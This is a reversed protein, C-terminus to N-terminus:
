TSRFSSSQTITRSFESPSYAPTPPRTWRPEGSSAAVSTAINVRAPTSRMMRKAKRSACDRGRLSRVTTVLDFAWRWAMTIHSSIAVSIAESNLSTVQSLISTSAMVIRMTMRGCHGARKANRWGGIKIGLALKGRHEFRNVARGEVNHTFPDGVRDAREPRHHHHELVQALFGGSIPQHPSDLAYGGVLAKVSGVEAAISRGGFHGRRDDVGDVAGVLSRPLDWDDRPMQRKHYNIRPSSSSRIPMPRFFHRRIRTPSRCASWPRWKRPCMSILITWQRLPRPRGRYGLAYVHDGAGLGHREHHLLRQRAHSRQNETQAAQPM